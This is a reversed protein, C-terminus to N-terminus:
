NNQEEFGVLYLLKYPTCRWYLLMVIDGIAMAFHLVKIDIYARVNQHPSFISIRPMLHKGM